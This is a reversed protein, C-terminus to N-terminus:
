LQLWAAATVNRVRPLLRRWALSALPAAWLEGDSLVALLEDELEM